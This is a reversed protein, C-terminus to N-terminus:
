HNTTNYQCYVASLPFQRGITAFFYYLHLCKCFRINLDVFLVYDTSCVLYKYTRLFDVNQSIISSQTQSAKTNSLAPVYM